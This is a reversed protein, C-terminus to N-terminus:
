FPDQLLQNPHPTAAHVQNIQKLIPAPSLCTHIRHHVKPNRAIFKKVLRFGTVTLKEPLDRKWQTLKQKM